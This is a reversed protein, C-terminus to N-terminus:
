GTKEKRWGAKRSGRGDGSHLAAARRPPGAPWRRSRAPAWADRQVEEVAEQRASTGEGRAVGGLVARAAAV